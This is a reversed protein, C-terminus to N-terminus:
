PLLCLVRASERNCRSTISRMWSIATGGCTLCRLLAVADRVKVARQMPTDSSLLIDNPLLIQVSIGDSPDTDIPEIFQPEGALAVNASFLLLLATKVQINM